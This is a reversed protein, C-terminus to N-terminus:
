YVLMHFVRGSVQLVRAGIQPLNLVRIGRLRQACKCSRGCNRMGLSSCMTAGGAHRTLHAGDMGHLRVYSNVFQKVTAKAKTGDFVGLRDRGLRHRTLRARRTAPKLRSVM